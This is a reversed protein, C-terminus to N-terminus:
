SALVASSDYSYFGEGLWDRGWRWQGGDWYLYRVCLRGRSSRYITGWFFIFRTDGKEDKKWEEPIIQPNKLLYDPVNANLVKKGKLEERLKNGEISGNKQKKSLYFDIKSPDFKINSMKQHEEVRWGDPIFPEADCNICHEIMKIEHTGAVLGLLDDKRINQLVHLLKKPNLGWTILWKKALELLSALNEGLVEVVKEYDAM